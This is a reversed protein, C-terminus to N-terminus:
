FISSLNAPVQVYEKEAKLKMYRELREEFLKPLINEKIRLHCREINGNIDRGNSILSQSSIFTFCKPLKSRMLIMSM